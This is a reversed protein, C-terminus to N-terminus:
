LFRLAAIADRPTRGTHRRFFASFASTHKFCRRIAMQKVSLNSGVILNSAEAIRQQNRYAQPTVGYTQIFLLRLHDASYGCVRALENLDVSGNVDDDLLRRLHAAPGGESPQVGHEPTLGVVLRM